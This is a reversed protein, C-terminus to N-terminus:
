LDASAAWSSLYGLSSGVDFVFGDKLAGVNFVGTSSQGTITPPIRMEVPFRVSGKYLGDIQATFAPVSSKAYYRRCVQRNLEQEAPSPPTDLHLTSTPGLELKATKLLIESNPAVNVMCNWRGSYSGLYQGSRSTIGNSLPKYIINTWPSDVMGFSLAGDGSVVTANVSFCYELGVAEISEIVQSIYASASLSTNKLRMGGAELTVLLTGGGGAAWRDVTYDGWTPTYSSKGRQNVMYPSAFWANDLLNKQPRAWYPGVWLWRDQPAYGCVGPSTIQTGATIGPLEAVGDYIIDIPQGATGSQLAIAQSAYIEPSIYRDFSNPLVFAPRVGRSNTYTNDVYNGNSAITSVYLSDHTNPSRLWWIAAGGSLFAIRKNNADATVGSDFYSLKAGDQPMYPSQSTSLGVEYGSLLFLKANLGDTGSNITTNDAGTGVRYPIKVEKIASQVSPDLSGLVTTNLHPHILSGAYSNYPYGTNYQQNELIDKRLVWTGDCSDDYIESPKGHHVVIYDFSVGNEILKIVAGVPLAGVSPKNKTVSGDVVDVVDGAAVTNGAAIPLTRIDAQLLQATRRNWPAGNETADDAMALDFINPQGAVPSLQVRGEKGPQPIRNKVDIM